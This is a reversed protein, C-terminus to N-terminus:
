APWCSLVPMSDHFVLSAAGLSGGPIIRIEVDRWQGVLLKARHPAHRGLFVLHEAFRELLCEVAWKGWADPAGFLIRRLLVPWDIDLKMRLSQIPRARFCFLAANAVLADDVLRGQPLRPRLRLKPLREILDMEERKNAPDLKGDGGSVARLEKLRAHGLEICVITLIPSIRLVALEPPCLFRIPPFGYSECGLVLFVACVVAAVAAFESLQFNGM